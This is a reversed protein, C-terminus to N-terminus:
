QYEPRPTREACSFEHVSLLFAERKLMVARDRVGFHKQRGAAGPLAAPQLPNPAHRCKASTSYDVNGGHLWSEHMSILRIHQIAGRIMLRATAGKKGERENQKEKNRRLRGM